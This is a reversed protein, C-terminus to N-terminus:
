SKVLLSIILSLICCYLWHVSFHVCVLLGGLIKLVLEASPWEPMNTMTLLDNIFIDFLQRYDNEGKGKPAVCRSACDFVSVLLEDLM